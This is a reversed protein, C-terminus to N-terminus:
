VQYAGIGGIVFGGVAAAGVLPWSRARKLVNSELIAWACGGFAAGGYALWRQIKIKARLVYLDNDNLDDPTHFLVKLDM